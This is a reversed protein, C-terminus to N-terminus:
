RGVKNALNWLQGRQEGSLTGGHQEVFDVLDNFAAQRAQAIAVVASFKRTPM